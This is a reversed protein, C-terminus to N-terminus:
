DKHGEDQDAHNYEKHGVPKNIPSAIQGSV